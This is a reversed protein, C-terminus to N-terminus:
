GVRRSAAFFLHTGGDVAGPQRCFLEEWHLFREWWLEDAALSELAAANGL